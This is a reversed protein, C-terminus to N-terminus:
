SEHEAKEKLRGIIVALEAVTPSEFLSRLPVELQLEARIQNVLRMALLSHGGLDFFNDDVGLQERQFLEKWMSALAAELSNRPAIWARDPEPHTPDHAPLARRDVKGNPLTPITDLTAFGSPMM